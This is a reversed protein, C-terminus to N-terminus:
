GSRGTLQALASDVDVYAGETGPPVLEAANKMFRTVASASLEVLAAGARSRLVIRMTDPLCRHRPFVLVDGIGSPRRLGEALLERAFVWVIPRGATAGLSLRVAYPDAPDYRLRGPLSVRRDESVSVLLTIDCNVSTLSQSM